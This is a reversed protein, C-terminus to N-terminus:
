YLRRARTCFSRGSVVDKLCVNLREARRLYSPLRVVKEVMGQRTSRVRALRVWSDLSTRRVRVFYIHNRPLRAATLHLQNGEIWAQLRPTANTEPQPAAQVAPPLWALSAALVVMVLLVRGAFQPTFPLMRLANM